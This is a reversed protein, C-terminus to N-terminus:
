AAIDAKPTVAGLLSTVHRSMSRLVVAVSARYRRPHFIFGIGQLAQLSTRLLNGSLQRNTMFGNILMKIRVISLSSVRPLAQSSLQIHNELTM